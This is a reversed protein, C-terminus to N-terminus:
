GEVAFWLVVANHAAHALMGPALGGGRAYLAGAILGLVLQPVGYTGVHALAFAVAGIAFAWPKRQVPLDDAIAQQLWGRFFYEEALPAVLVTAVLMAASEHASFSPASELERKPFLGIMALALRGSAAGAILGVPWYWAARPFFRPRSFRASSRMTLVVLVGAGFVFGIALLYGSSVDFVALLRSSLAQTSFFATAALLARWVSTEREAHDDPDDIWRISRRAARQAEWSVALVALLSVGAAWSDPAFVTAMLPMLLLQTSFSSGAQGGAVGAVGVGSSMFAVAVAGAVAYYLALSALVARMSLGLAHARAAMFAAYALACFVPILLRRLCAAKGDLVDHPALPLASLFPRAVLDSRAARGALAIAQISGLYVMMGMAMLLAAERARESVYLELSLMTSILGASFMVLLLKGGQRWVMLAELRTRSLVEKRKRAAGAQVDLRDFGRREALALALYSACAVCAALAYLVALGRDSVLWGRAISRTVPGSGILPGVSFFMLGFGILALGTGFYGTIRATAPPGLVRLWARLAGGFLFLALYLLWGLLAAFAAHVGSAGAASSGALPVVCALLLGMYGDVLSLGVRALLSIPMAELFLDNRGARAHMAVASPSLGAGFGALAVGLAHWTFCALDFKVSSKISSFALPTLYGLSLLNILLFTPVGSQKPLDGLRRPRRRMHRWWLRLLLALQRTGSASGASM